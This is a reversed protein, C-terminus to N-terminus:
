ELYKDKLKQLQEGTLGLIQKCYDPISGCKEKVIEIAGKIYQPKVNILANLMKKIRIPCPVIFIGTKQIRRKHRLFIGSAVYDKIIIEEDVGLAGEALMALLGTRDKGQNCLWLVCGEEELLIDFFRRLKPISDENFLVDAYMARMYNDANGYEKKIHRSEAFVIRAMSQDATIAATSTTLIPIDIYRVGDIETRPKERRENETRLDIITTLGYDKLKKVTKEPLKYLRSSRILKGYKVSKGGEAPLGGLDRANNIKKFKLREFNM